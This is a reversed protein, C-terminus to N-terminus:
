ILEWGADGRVLEYDTNDICIYGKDLAAEFIASGTETFTPLILDLFTKDDPTAMEEKSMCNNYEANYDDAIRYGYTESKDHYDVFVTRYISARNSM